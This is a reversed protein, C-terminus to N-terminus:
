ILVQVGNNLEEVSSDESQNCDRPEKRASTRNETRPQIESFGRKYKTGTENSGRTWWTHHSNVSSLAHSKAGLFDLCLDCSSHKRKPEDTHSLRNKLGTRNRIYPTLGGHVALVAETSSPVSEGFWQFGHVGSIRFFYTKLQPQSSPPTSHQRVCWEFDGM